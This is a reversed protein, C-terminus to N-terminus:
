DLSVIFSAEKFEYKSKRPEPTLRPRKNLVPKPIRKPKPPRATHKRYSPDAEKRKKYYARAYGLLRERNQKMYNTQYSLKEDKKDYYAALARAIIRERNKIYYEKRYDNM